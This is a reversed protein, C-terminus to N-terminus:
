RRPPWSPTRWSRTSCRAALPSEESDRARELAAVVDDPLNHTADIFLRAVTESIQDVHIDRM